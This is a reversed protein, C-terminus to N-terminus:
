DCFIYGGSMAYKGHYERKERIRDGNWVSYTVGVINDKADPIFGIQGADSAWDGKVFSGAPGFPPHEAASLGPQTAAVFHTMDGPSKSIYAHLCGAGACGDTIIVQLRLDPIGDFPLVGILM